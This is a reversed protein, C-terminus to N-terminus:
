KRFSQTRIKELIRQMKTKRKKRSIIVAGLIIMIFASLLIIDNLNIEVGAATHMTQIHKSNNLERAYRAYSIARNFFGENYEKIALNLYEKGAELNRSKEIERKAEHMLKNWIESIEEELSNIEGQTKASKILREYYWADKETYELLNSKLEYDQSNM